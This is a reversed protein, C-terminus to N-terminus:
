CGSLDTKQQLNQLLMTASKGFTIEPSKKGSRLPFKSYILQYIEVNRTMKSVIITIFAQLLILM